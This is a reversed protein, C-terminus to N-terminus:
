NIKIRIDNGIFNYPTFYGMIRSFIRISYIEDLENLTLNTSIIIKKNSLIRKNMLNFLEDVAYDTANETGLDDIILLDCTNLAEIFSSDIISSYESLRSKRILDILDSSIMYIIYIGKKILDSAICNIMFTKGVGTSGTFFLNASNENFNKTYLVCDQYIKKMNARPSGSGKQTKNTFLELNFNEFNEKELISELSTQNYLKSAVSQKCCICYVGGVFGTDNCISCNYKPSYDNETYKHERLLISKKEKLEEIKRFIEKKNSFDGAHLLQLAKMGLDSIEKDIRELDNIEKFIKNKNLEAENEAYLRKKEFEKLTQEILHKM